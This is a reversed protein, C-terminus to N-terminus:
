RLISYLFGEQLHKLSHVCEPTFAALFRPDHPNCYISSIVFGEPTQEVHFCFSFSILLKIFLHMFPVCTEMTGKKREIKMQNAAKIPLNFIINSIDM